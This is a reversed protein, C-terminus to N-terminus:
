RNNNRNNKRDNEKEEGFMKEGKKKVRKIVEQRYRYMFYGRQWEWLIVLVLLFVLFLSAAYNNGLFLFVISFLLALYIWTLARNLSEVVKFLLLLIEKLQRFPETFIFWLFIKLRFLFNKIRDKM